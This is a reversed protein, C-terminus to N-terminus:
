PPSRDNALQLAKVFARFDACVRLSLQYHEGQACPLAFALDDVPNRDMPEGPKDCAQM